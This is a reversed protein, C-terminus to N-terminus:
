NSGLNQNSYKESDYEESFRKTKVIFTQLQVICSEERFVGFPIELLKDLYQQPKSIDGQKNQIERYKEIAKKKVSDSVDLACIRPEYDIESPMLSDIQKTPRSEREDLIKRTQLPLHNYIIETISKMSSEREILSFLLMGMFECKDDGLFMLSLINYQSYPTSSLFDKVLVPVMKKKDALFSELNTNIKDLLTVSTDCLLNCFCLKYKLWNELFNKNDNQKEVYKLLKEKKYWTYPSNILVKYSDEIFYGKGLIGFASIELCENSYIFDKLQTTNYIASFDNASIKKDSDLFEIFVFSRHLM